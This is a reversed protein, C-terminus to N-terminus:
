ALTCFDKCFHFEINRVREHLEGITICRPKGAGKKHKLEERLDHRLSDVIADKHHRWIDGVYRPSVGLGGLEQAVQAYAKLRNRISGTEPNVHKCLSLSVRFRIEEQNGLLKKQGVM